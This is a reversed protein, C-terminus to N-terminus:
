DTAPFSPQSQIGCIGAGSSVGVRVYGNEGWSTGWSNKITFYETGNDTGYGVVLVGHDLSTGCKSSTIIGGTYSHFVTQDAEIAVSVPGKNLAAKLQDSNDHKVDTYTEAAVVGKSKNYKCGFLGGSKAVYPYDGETELPHTKTYSFARDMMGGNCGLNLWSCDVLQQESLSVLNGTKIFHAGEMSGTTSFSWCSGCQGQDKIPTVAGKAVWDISDAINDTPLEVQQIDEPGALNKYGLRQKLEEKTMDTLFNVGVTSTQNPEANFAEIEKLNQSFQNLRFHYEARTGYTKGHEAIFQFFQQEEASIIGHNHSRFMAVDDASINYLAVTAALGVTAISAAIEKKM